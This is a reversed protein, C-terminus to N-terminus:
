EIGLVRLCFSLNETELNELYAIAVALSRYTVPPQSTEATIVQSLPSRRYLGTAAMAYVLVDTIGWSKPKEM